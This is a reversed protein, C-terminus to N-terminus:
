TQAAKWQSVLHPLHLLLQKMVREAGEEFATLNNFAEAEASILVVIKM